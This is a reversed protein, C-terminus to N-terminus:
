FLRIIKLAVYVAYIVILAIAEGRQLGMKRRFFLLVIASLGFLFPIDFRLLSRSVNLGAIGSGLGLPILIDFINSGILNGVGLRVAHRRLAGFTVALEPLSTGLGVILIGVLSQAVGWAEALFVANNVVVRSCYALITFGAILSIIAWWAYMKPARAVKERVKEERFLTFFYFVYVILFIAGELRTITGDFAVLFLLVVSGLMMLGDRRLEWKTLALYGFLGLIGLTLGIQGFCSGLSNGIILGSTEVGGLKHIVGTVVVFLEPLDTGIALITLGIFLRSIKFHEAINLSGRIILETGLVLGLLGLILYLLEFM